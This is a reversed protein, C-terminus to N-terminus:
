DNIEKIQDNKPNYPGDKVEFLVCPELVHLTHWQNAPITYCFVNNKDLIIEDCINEYEDYLVIIAKGQILLLTEDTHSHMHIPFKTNPLLIDLLKQAQSEFSRHLLINLRKRELSSAELLKEEITSKCLSVIM